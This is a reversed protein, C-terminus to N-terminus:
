YRVVADGGVPFGVCTLVRGKEIEDDMLVENYAMWIKGSICTAVCSGCRGTECSYPLDINLKKAAKTISDPYQVTVEFKKNNIFITVKHPDTDPPKPIVIRPVPFFDEKIIQKPLINFAKATISITLTYNYPGCIYVWVNEKKEPINKQLIEELLSHSLRKSQIQTSDSFFYRIFFREPFENQFANLENYFITQDVSKNSYFLKIKYQSTHLVTKIISFCPTIGSGAAFFVLLNDDSKEPITFFGSIGSTYLIDGEKAHAIMWRSFEGNDLRKVTICLPENLEPSSSISFSRRKEGHRSYFVLTIFQGASYNPQWNHLPDLIFTKTTSNEVVIEKIRVQKIISNDM